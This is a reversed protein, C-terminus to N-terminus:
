KTPCECLDLNLADLEIHQEGIVVTVGIGNRRVLDIHHAIDDRRWANAREREVHVYLHKGGEHDRPGLLVGCLDPRMERPMREGPDDRDQSRLWECRFVNCADLTPDTTKQAHVACGGHPRIAHWCWVRAPKGMDPISLLKCCLSCSGCSLTM